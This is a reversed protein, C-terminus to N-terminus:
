KITIIGAAKEAKNRKDLIRKEEQIVESIQTSFVVIEPCGFSPYNNFWWSVQARAPGIKNFIRAKTIEDVWSEGSGGYGKRRFWQGDRSRIAFFKLEEESM